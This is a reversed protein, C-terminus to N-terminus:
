IKYKCDEFSSFVFFFDLNVKLVLIQVFLDEAVVAGVWVTAGDGGGKVDTVLPGVVALYLIKICVPVFDGGM